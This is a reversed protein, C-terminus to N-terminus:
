GTATSWVGELHEAASTEHPQPLSTAQPLLLEFRTGQPARDSLRIEGKCADVIERVIALGLGLHPGSKGKSVFPDFLTARVQEPIGPGDDEVVISCRGDASPSIAVQVQTQEGGAEFANKVLNIVARELAKPDAEVSVPAVELRTQWGHTAGAATLAEGLQRAWSEVAFPQVDLRMGGFYARFEDIIGMARDAESAMKSVYRGVAEDSNVLEGLLDVYGVIIGLPNALDHVLMAALQGHRALRAMDPHPPQEVAEDLSICALVRGGVFHLPFCTVSQNEGCSHVVRQGTLTDSVWRSLEEEEVGLYGAVECFTPAAEEDLVDSGVIRLDPTIVWSHNSQESCVQQRVPERLNRGHSRLKTMAGELAEELRKIGFPKILYDAANLRVSEIASELSAYGTIIIVQTTEGIGSIAKLVKTGAMDPLRLDLMVLDFRQRELASFAEEGTAAATTDFGKAKTLRILLERLKPDDEVVLLRARSSEM